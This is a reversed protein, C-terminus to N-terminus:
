ALANNYKDTLRAVSSGWSTNLGTPDNDAGIPCYKEYIQSITIRGQNIYNNKLNKAMAELCDDVSDFTQLKSYNSAKSMIGAVNNKEKAANSTGNASEHNCIAALLAASIGYKNQLEIFKEGKGKLVGSLQKDLDKATGQYLDTAKQNFNGYDANGTPTANQKMINQIIANFDPMKFNQFQVMLNNAMDAMFKQEFPNYTCLQLMNLGFPDNSGIQNNGFMTIENPLTNTFNGGILSSIDPLSTNNTLPNTFNNGILASIDPITSQTNVLSTMDIGSLYNLNTNNMGLADFTM